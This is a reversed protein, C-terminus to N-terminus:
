ADASAHINAVCARGRQPHPPQPSLDRTNNEIIAVCARGRQPHPPQLTLYRPNNEGHRARKHAPRRSQQVLGRGCVPVFLVIGSELQVHAGNLLQKEGDFTLAQEGETRSMQTRHTLTKASSIAHSGSKYVLAPTQDSDPQKATGCKGKREGAGGQM